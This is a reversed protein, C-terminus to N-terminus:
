TFLRILGVHILVIAGQIAAAGLPYGLGFKLVAMARQAPSSHRDLDALARYARWLGTWTLSLTLWVGVAFFTPLLSTMGIGAKWVRKLWEFGYLAAWSSQALVLHLVLPIWLYHYWKVGLLCGRRSDFHLGLERGWVEGENGGYIATPVTLLLILTAALKNGISLDM